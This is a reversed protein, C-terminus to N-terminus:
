AIRMPWRYPSPNRSSSTSARRFVDVVVQAHLGSPVCVNVVEVDTRDLLRRYDTYSEAHYSAAFRLARSERIDAVAALVAGPLTNISEAHRPAVRGCGILGFRLQETM